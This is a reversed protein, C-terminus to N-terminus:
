AKGDQTAGQNVKPQEEQIEEERQKNILGHKKFIRHIANHGARLGFERKLREEGFGTDQRLSVIEIETAEDTKNPSSLPRRPLDRLGSWGYLKYIAVWKM